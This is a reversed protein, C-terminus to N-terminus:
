EARGYPEVSVPVNSMRPQGTYSDFVDDDPILRNPNSGTRRVDSEGPEPPGYGFAMSVVGRRLRADAAAVASIEAISSRLRILGGEDVGLEHLDEPHMFAPNYSVGRNTAEVNCSSNYTHNHRRCLLRFRFTRDSGSALISDRQLALASMM